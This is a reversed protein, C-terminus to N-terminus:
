ETEIAVSMQTPFLNGYFHLSLTKNGVSVIVPYLLTFLFFASFCFVSVVM